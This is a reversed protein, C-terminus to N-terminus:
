PCFPVRLARTTNGAAGGGAPDRYVAQFNWTSGATVQGVAAPPQTLDLPLLAEGQANSISVGLRLLPANVCLFGNFLPQEIENGGYIFFCTQGSPLQSAQLTVNNAAVSTSGVLAMEAVAGTSNPNGACYATPPPGDMQVDLLTAAGASVTVTRTTSQLNPATFQLTYTGPPLNAHWRGYTGGSRNEEGAPFAFGLVEISAEVPAGDCTATVHGSLPIERQLMWGIGDVVQVAEAQAVAYPPQFELATEVLVSMAGRRGSHWQQHEGDASPRREAGAYGSATSLLAAEAQFYADFPHDPCAYGWLVEQGSSHYDIVKALRRAEGLAIIAQAEPESAPSPGKYVISSEFTSGACPYDWGQPYNRNLDVGVGGAQVRRNKRWNDDTSFVYEYGDPNCVPIIWIEHEDVAATIANVTGYGDTLRRIAELAIVPTVLERSHHASAILMAPEDEDLAVNDSIKMAILSRGEFTQPAGFEQSLDVVQCISPYALATMQLSANISALDQYGPPVGRMQSEEAQIERLPRGAVPKSHALGRQRLEIFEEKGGFVLVGAKDIVVDFGEASLAARLEQPVVSQIHVRQTTQSSALTTLVLLCPALALRKM